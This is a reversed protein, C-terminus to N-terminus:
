HDEYDGKAEEANKDDSSETMASILGPESRVSDSSQDPFHNNEVICLTYCIFLLVVHWFIGFRGFYNVCRTWHHSSFISLLLIM